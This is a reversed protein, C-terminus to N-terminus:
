TSLLEVLRQLKAAQDSLGAVSLASQQAADSVKGSTADLLRQNQSIMGITEAQESSQRRITQFSERFTESRVTIEDVAMKLSEMRTCGDKTERLAGEVLQRTHASADGCRKALARVEDAVVGFGAGSKGARAAEVAANLALLNTQLSIQDITRLIDGISGNALQIKAMSRMMEDSERHAKRLYEGFIEEVLSESKVANKMTIQAASSIRETASLTEASMARQQLAYGAIQASFSAVEFATRAANDAAEPLQRFTISEADRSKRYQIAVYCVPVTEMVVFIAHLVVIGFGAQYNFVSAPFFMWFLVHHAAITAAGAIVAWVDGLLILVALIVFIHFHLEIMGHGLHILLGSMGTSAVGLMVACFRSGPASFYAAAPGALILSGIGLALFVGSRFEYAAFALLPLHSALVFLMQRSAELKWSKEENM